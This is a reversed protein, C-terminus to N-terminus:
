PSFHPDLRCRSIVVSLSGALDVLAQVETETFTGGIARNVLELVGSVSGATDVVPAAVVERPICGRLAAANPWSTTPGDAATEHVV